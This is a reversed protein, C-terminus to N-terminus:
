EILVAQSKSFNTRRYLQMLGWRPSTYILEYGEDLQRFLAQTTRKRRQRDRMGWLLVYDVRGPTQEAYALMEVRAPQWILDLDTTPGVEEPSAPPPEFILYTGPNLQPRFVAPFYTRQGAEYNGLDVVDRQVAIYGAASAFPNVRLALTSGGPADGRQSFYVPLVTSNKEVLNMGSLYEDLYTGIEAYTYAHSILLGMTVVISTVQIVRRVSLPFAYNGLALGLILAFYPFLYMRDRIYSGGAIAEPSTIAILAYVAALVFFMLGPGSSRRLQGSLVLFGVVVGFLGALLCAFWIERHDFSVLSYMSALQLILTKLSPGGAWSITSGSDSISDQVAFILALLCTPLLAVALSYDITRETTQIMLERSTDARVKAMTRVIGPWVTLLVVEVYAAVLAVLHSFYLLLSLAAIAVNRRISPEASHRLLYGSFLFFIPLSYVFSYFGMHFLYNYVFPFALVALFASQRRAATIAYRVSVPLLIVYGSLFVKEATAPPLISLLGSLVLHWFWNPTLSTNLAYYERLIGTSASGYQRIIQANAVHSPGDQSPFYHFIWLPLLQAGVLAVFLLRERNSLWTRVAVGGPLHAQPPLRPPV